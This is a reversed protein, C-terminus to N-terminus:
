PAVTAAESTSETGKTFLVSAPSGTVPFQALMPGGGLFHRTPQRETALSIVLDILMVNRPACWDVRPVTRGAHRRVLALRRLGRPAHDSRQDESRPRAALDPSSTSYVGAAAPFGYGGVRVNPLANLTCRAVALLPM